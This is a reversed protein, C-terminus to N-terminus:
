AVISDFALDQDFAAGAAATKVFRPHTIRIVASVDEALFLGQRV